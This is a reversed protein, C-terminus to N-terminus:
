HWVIIEVYKVVEVMITVLEAFSNCALLSFKFPVCRSVDQFTWLKWPLNSPTPNQFNPLNYIRALISAITTKIQIHACQLRTPQSTLTCTYIMTPASFFWRKEVVAHRKSFALQRREIRAHNKNGKTWCKRREFVTLLDVKFCLDSEAEVGERAEEKFGMELFTMLLLTKVNQAEWGKQDSSRGFCYLFLPQFQKQLWAIRWICIKLLQYWM